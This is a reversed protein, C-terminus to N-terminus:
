TREPLAKPVLKVRSQQAALTLVEEFFKEDQKGEVYVVLETIHHAGLQATVRTALRAVMKKELPYDYYPIQEEPELLGFLGSLIFFRMESNKAIEAARKIHAGSYRELASVKRESKMKEPGCIACVARM